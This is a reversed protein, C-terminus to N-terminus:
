GEPGTTRPSRLWRIANSLSLKRERLPPSHNIVALGSEERNLVRMDLSEGQESALIEEVSQETMGRRIFGEAREPCGYRACIRQIHTRTPGVGKQTIYQSVEEPTWREDLFSTAMDIWGSHACLTLISLCDERSPEPRAPQPPPPDDVAASEARQRQRRKRRPAPAPKPATSDAAKVGVLERMTGIRDALGAEVGEHALYTAAETREVQDARLGRFRAVADTFMGRIEDCRSQIQERVHDPLPEHPNGDAKRTGAHIYSVKIGQMRDRESRDVHAVVVGISGVSGTRSVVIESAASALLYAASLAADNVMAVVPKRASVKRVKEALEFVGAVEGGPSDIDLIIRDAKPERSAADLRAHLSSYSVLGSLADLGGTRHVLTGVVPIIAARAQDNLIYGGPTPSGGLGGSMAQPEPVYDWSGQNAETLVTLIASLKGPELLMPQDCVQSLLRERHAIRARM